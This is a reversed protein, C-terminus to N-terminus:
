GGHHTLTRCSHIAQSLGSTVASINKLDDATVKAESSRYVLIFGQSSGGRGLPITVASIKNLGTLNGQLGMAFFDEITCVKNSQCITDMLEPTFCNELHQKGLTIPTSSEFIHLEFNGGQRLFFTVNSDDLEEKILRVATYLLNNLDTTGIISEYFSATFSIVNLKKIFDRQAVIFDNCLIDIKKAQQKRDKNLQKTLRRLRIQRQENNPM